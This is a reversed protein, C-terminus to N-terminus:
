LRLRSWSLRSSGFRLDSLFKKFTVLIDIEVTRIRRQTYLYTEGVLDHSGVDRWPHNQELSRLPASDDYRQTGLIRDVSQQHAQGELYSCV